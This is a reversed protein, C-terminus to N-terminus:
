ASKDLYMDVATEVGFGYGRILKTNKVWPQYVYATSVGTWPVFWMSEAMVRQVERVLEVRKDEDVEKAQDSWLKLLAADGAPTPDNTKPLEAAPIAGKPGWNHRGSSPHFVTFFINHPDIPSGQLPALGFSNPPIDGLFTTQLYGAYEGLDLTIRFGAEAASSAFADMQSKFGAGYVNSSKATLDVGGGFGAAELLKKAEAVDRKYYKANPGFTAEDKIADLWYKEYQSIHTNGSGGGVAKPQDLVGLIGPRDIAMSLAQRVRKDNFPPNAFNFYAGGWVHEPGTFFQADRLEGRWRTWLESSGLSGDFTGGKLNTLIQEPDNTLLGNFGDMYPKPADYYEPNKKWRIVQNPEWSDFIWPGSGIAQKGIQDKNDLLEQPIVWPGGDNNAFLVQFAPGFPQKLKITFTKPDVVTVSDVQALWNGRNPSEAAFIEISHKVDDATVARGNVPAINHFKLNDRLKFNFTTGDVVEPVDASADGEVNSFDIQVSTVGEVDEFKGPAFKLLRSYHYAAPIQALFSLQRQPDLSPPNGTSLGVLPGTFTGGAKPSSAATSTGGSPKEDDGCGVVGAAALGAATVASTQLLRRRTLRTRWFRSWYDSDTAM